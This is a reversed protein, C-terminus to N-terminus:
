LQIMGITMALASEANSIHERISLLTSAMFPYVVRRKADRLHDVINRPLTHPEIKKLKKALKELPERCGLLGEEILKRQADNLYGKQPIENIQLFIRSLHQISAATRAVDDNYSKWANYYDFLADCVTIGLSIIGVATGSVSLLDTM